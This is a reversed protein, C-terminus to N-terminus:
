IIWYRLARVGGFYQIGRDVNLTQSLGSKVDFKGCPNANPVGFNLM